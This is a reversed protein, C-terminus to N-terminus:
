KISKTMRTEPTCYCGLYPCRTTKLEPNFKEKFDIDYINFTDDLGYINSGCSGTLKGNPNIYFMELGVHCQWNFFHNWDNIQVQNHRVTQTSGNDFIVKSRNISFNKRMRFAYFLSPNRKTSHSLYDLQDQTYNTGISGELKQTGIYWKNRGVRKFYEVMNVCKDWDTSDMCVSVEVYVDTDFLTDAITVFQALNTEKHHATLTVKNFVQAKEQWWRITRSGNSQVSAIFNHKNKLRIIFEDLEPWLTPEGGLIQLEITEYGNHKYYDFLHSFNDVILNLNKPYPYKGANSGPFCYNCTYNCVDTPSYSIKIHNKKQNSIIKIPKM